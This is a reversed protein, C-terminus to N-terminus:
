RAPGGQSRHGVPLDQGAPDQVCEPAKRTGPGKQYSYVVGLPHITGGGVHQLKTEAPQLTLRDRDQQREM